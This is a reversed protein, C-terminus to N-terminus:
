DFTFDIYSVPGNVNGSPSHSVVKPGSVFQDNSRFLTTYPFLTSRPPRRIMLLIILNGSTDAINPAILMTYHHVETLASFRVRYTNGGQYFVGSVKLSESCRMCSFM